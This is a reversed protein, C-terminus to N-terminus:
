RLEDLVKMKPYSKNKKRQQKSTLMATIPIEETIQPSYERHRKLLM